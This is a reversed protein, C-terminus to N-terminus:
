QRGAGGGRRRGLALAEDRLALVSRRVEAREGSTDVVRTAAPRLRAALDGQAAIREDAEVADSGRGILRERQEV